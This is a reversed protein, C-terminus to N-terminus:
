RPGEPKRWDIRVYDQREDLVLEFVIDDGDAAPSFALTENGATINGPVLNSRMIIRSNNMLERFEIMTYLAKEDTTLFASQRETEQLYAIYEDITPRWLGASAELGAAFDDFDQLNGYASDLNLYLTYVGPAGIETRTHLPLVVLGMLGGLLSPPHYPAPEGSQGVVIYDLNNNEAALFTDYSYSFSVPMLGKPRVGAEQLAKRVSRVQAEQAGYELTGLPKGSLGGVGIGITAGEEQAIDLIRAVNGELDDTYNTVYFATLPQGHEALVSFVTRYLGEDLGSLQTVLFLVRDYGPPVQSFALDVEVDYTKERLGIIFVLIVLTIALMFLHTRYRGVIRGFASKAIRKGIRQRKNRSM